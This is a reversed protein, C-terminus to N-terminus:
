SFFSRSSNALIGRNDRGTVAVLRQPKNRYLHRPFETEAQTSTTPEIKVTRGTGPSIAYACKEFISNIDFAVEGAHVMGPYVHRVIILEKSHNTLRVTPEPDVNLAITLEAGSSTVPVVIEEMATQAPYGQGGHICQAAVGGPVVAVVASGTILKLTNRKKADVM